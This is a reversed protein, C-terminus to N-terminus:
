NEYISVAASEKVEHYAAVTKQKHQQLKKDTFKFEKKVIADFTDKLQAEEAFQFAWGFPVVELSADVLVFDLLLYSLYEKLSPHADTLSQLLAEDLMANEDLVFNPFFQRAHSLVLVTQFWIPKLFLQLFKRTLTTLKLQKFIDLQDLDTSGEIMNMIEAEASEKQNHWLQVARARIFNEPHSITAAKVEKEAAFIEEAQAVYSEASVKQLGTAIKVLSTIVPATNELVAYAGRDCFIETYLRFLRATEHHAADSNYNNAIATIIRDTIELDGNLMTYLRIHALEHAIVAVLEDDNLLQTIRGSFVLHAEGDVYIISANLEEAFQAQYVQVILDTLGLKEKAISVKEYLGSDAVPDFKYTNKLLELKFGSLQENRTKHAAFFDWTKPQAKFHQCVNRHYSLAQPM